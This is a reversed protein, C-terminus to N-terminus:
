PRKPRRLEDMHAEAEINQLIRFEDWTARDLNTLVPWINEHDFRIRRKIEPLNLGPLALAIEGDNRFADIGPFGHDNGPLQLERRPGLNDGLFDLPARSQRAACREVLGVM